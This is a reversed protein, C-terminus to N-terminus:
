GHSHQQQLRSDRAAATNRGSWTIACVLLTLSGITPYVALTVWIPMSLAITAGMAVIGAVASLVLFGALMTRLRWAFVTILTSTMRPLFLAPDQNFNTTGDFCKQRDPTVQGRAFRPPRPSAPARLICGSSSFGERPGSRKALAMFVIAEVLSRRAIAPCKAGNDRIPGARPQQAAAIHRFHPMRLTAAIGSSSSSQREKTM